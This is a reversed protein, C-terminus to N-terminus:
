LIINLPVPTFTLFFILVAAVALVRRRPDLTTIQDLPEAYARGLFYLLLAWLWWGNWVFGLLVAAGLVFPYIRRIANEGLLVYVIHGGDLQGAPLLNLGTVLLGAWGAWAVPSIMVDMGGLPFPRGTFFYRVWYLLPSIGYDAPVPLLKGFALYKMLLYLLSNGEMTLSIGQPVALPLPEIHSLKLGIWLVPLAVLLGSLPGAIGVDLLVRRNKPIGKMSIFAGLTGFPSFPFPIFYPLTVHLGHFRGALYHGFEHAGLILLMSLAFPWGRQVLALAAAAPEAPLPEQLGYLAGTVLVSLLTAVFLGLNVWPNSPKPQPKGPVLLVAHRGGDWRFLPTIHYPKLLEALQDYAAASDQNYLRGRYRVIFNIQPASAAQRPARWPPVGGRQATFLPAEPQAYAAGGLTTDEIRLVRGVVASLVAEDYPVKVTEDM